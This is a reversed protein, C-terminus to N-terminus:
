LVYKASFQLYMSDSDTDDQLYQGVEAGFSLSPTYNKFINVGWHSRDADTIDTTINGYFVSSRTDKTWHHRYAMMFSLSEEAETGVIDQQATVGVYRGTNGGHIQFRFDDKGFTKIQGAVSYGLATESESEGSPTQTPNSNLQRFLGAVSVNGWDGNFTYKAIVDPLSDQSADGGYSEPNELSVQVNGMTYRIQTNRVFAEGVMPGAFDATEPLASTNMFTTWTQGILIDKYKIFAHRLRPHVSNSIIENGGGGYFDMEIFGTVDGHVYKTNFRTENAFMKFQSSDAVVPASGTWFDKYGATGDVYRTDIKIYGGFTLTDDESIKFEYSANAAGAMTLLGTALLLKTKNFMKDEGHDFIAM